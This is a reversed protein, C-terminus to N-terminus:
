NRYWMAYTILNWTDGNCEVRIVDGKKVPLQISVTGSVNAALDFIASTVNNIYVLVDYGATTKSATVLYICDNTATWTQPTSTTLTKNVHIYDVGGGLYRHGQVTKDGVTIENYSM